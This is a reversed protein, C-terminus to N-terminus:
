YGFRAKQANFNQTIETQSLEKNYVQTVAINGIMARGGYFRGLIWDNATQAQQGSMTSTQKLIGNIYLKITTNTGDFYRTAVAHLWTNKNEVSQVYAETNPNIHSVGYIIYIQSPNPHVQAYMSQFDYGTSQNTIIGGIDPAGGIGSINVWAAMTLTNSSNWSAQNGLAVYDDTGDFVWSGGFSSTYGTNNVLSGTLSGTLSNTTLSGREFSVLNGADVAFILGNTVIPAQYYNQLVETQSLNRNYVRANSISGNFYQGDIASKRGMTFFYPSGYANYDMSGTIATTAVLVGNCYLIASAGNYTIIGHIWSGTVLPNGFTQAISGNSNIYGSLQGAGAVRFGYKVFSGNAAGTYAAIWSGNVVSSPKLMCELSLSIPPQLLPTNPILGYDDVGDFTIYGNSNFLSGNFLSGSLNNGSVDYWTTGSGTNFLSASVNQTLQIDWIDVISGTGIGFDMFRYTDNYTGAPTAGTTTGTSSSYQYTGYNATVVNSIARDNWDTMNFVSGSIIQYNFSLNYSQYNTLISLPFLLRFSGYTYPNIYNPPTTIRFKNNPTITSQTIAITLPSFSPTYVGNNYLLNVQSPNVPYSGAFGADLNLVDGDTVINPYVENVALLNNQTAIWKLAETSSGTVGSLAGKWKAFKVLEAENQPCFVEPDGSASTEVIQYTGQTFNPGNYWGTTSTPGVIDNVALAVNGKIISGTVNGSNNKVSFPM